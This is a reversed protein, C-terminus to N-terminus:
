ASPSTAVPVDTDRRVIARIYGPQSIEWTSTVSPTNLASPQDTSADTVIGPHTDAKVVLVLM